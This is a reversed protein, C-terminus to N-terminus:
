TVRRLLVAFFTRVNSVSASLSSRAFTV